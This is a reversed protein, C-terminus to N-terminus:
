SAAGPPPTPFAVSHLGADVQAIQWGADTRYGRVDVSVFDALASDQTARRHLLEGVAKNGAFGCRSPSAGERGGEGEPRACGAKVQRVSASAATSTLGPNGYLTFGRLLRTGELAACVAVIGDAESGNNSLGLSCWRWRWLGIGWGRRLLLFRILPFGGPVALPSCRRPSCPASLFGCRSTSQRKPWRRPWRRWAPPKSNM